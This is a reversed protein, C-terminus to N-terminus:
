RECTIHTPAEERFFGGQPEIRPGRGWAVVLGECKPHVSVPTEVANLNLGVSRNVSVRSQTRIFEHFIDGHTGSSKKRAYNRLVSRWIWPLFICNGSLMQITYNYTSYQM